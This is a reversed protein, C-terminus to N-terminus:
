RACALLDDLVKEIRARSRHYRPPPSWGIQCAYNGFQDRNPPPKAAKDRDEIDERKLGAYEEAAALFKSRESSPIDERVRHCEEIFRPLSDAHTKPLEGDKSSRVLSRVSEVYARFNRKRTEFESRGRLWNGLLPKGLTSLIQGFM